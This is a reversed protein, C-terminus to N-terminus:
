PNPVGPDPRAQQDEAVRVLAAAAASGASQVLKGVIPNVLVATVFGAVNPLRKVFWRRVYQATTLDPEAATLAEELEGVREAAAAKEEDPAEAQVRAKLDAFLQKLQAQEERSLQAPGVVSTQHIGKGVAVQGSVDGTITGSIHDGEATM